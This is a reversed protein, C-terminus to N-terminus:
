KIKQQVMISSKRIKITSKMLIVKRLLLVQFVTGVKGKELYQITKMYKDDDNLDDTVSNSGDLQENRPHKRTM